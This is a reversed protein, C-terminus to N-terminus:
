YYEFTYEEVSGDSLTRTESVPYDSSNYQYVSEWALVESGNQMKSFSIINRPTSIGFIDLIRSSESYFKDDKITQSTWITDNTAVNRTTVTTSCNSDTYDTTQSIALTNDATYNELMQAGCESDFVSFKLYGLLESDNTYDESLVNGNVDSYYKSNYSFDLVRDIAILVTDGSYTYTRSQTLEGVSDYIEWLSLRNNTDYIFHHSIIGNKLVQKTLLGSQTNDIDDTDDSGCSFVGFTLIVILLKKIM